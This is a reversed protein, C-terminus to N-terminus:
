FHKAALLGLLVAGSVAAVTVMNVLNQKIMSLPLHARSPIPRSTLRRSTKAPTKSPMRKRPSPPDPRKVAQGQRKGQRPKDGIPLWWPM